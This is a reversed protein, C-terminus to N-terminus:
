REKLLLKIRDISYNKIIDPLKFCLNYINQDLETEEISFFHWKWM